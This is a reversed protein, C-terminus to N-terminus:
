MDTEEKQGTGVEGWLRILLNRHVFVESKNNLDEMGPVTNLIDLYEVLTQHVHEHTKLIYKNCQIIM